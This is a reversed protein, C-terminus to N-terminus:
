AKLTKDEMSWNNLDFLDNFLKVLHPNGLHIQLVHIKSKDIIVEADIDSPAHVAMRASHYEKNIFAEICNRAAIDIDMHSARTTIYFSAIPRGSKPGQFDIRANLVIEQRIIFNRNCYHDEEDQVSLNEIHLINRSKM